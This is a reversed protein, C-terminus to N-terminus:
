RTNYPDDSVVYGTDLELVSEVNGEMGRLESEAQEPDGGRELEEFGCIHQPYEQPLGEVLL